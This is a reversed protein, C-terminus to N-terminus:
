HLLAPVHGHHIFLVFTCLRPFSHLVQLQPLLCLQQGVSLPPGNQARMPLLHQLPSSQRAEGARLPQLLASVWVNNQFM